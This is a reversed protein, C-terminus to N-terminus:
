MPRWHTPTYYVYTEGIWWMVRCDPNRQTAKMPQENRTGRADEIKTMVEVNLPATSIPQWPDRSM